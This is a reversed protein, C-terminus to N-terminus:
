RLKKFFKKLLSRSEEECIKGIIQIKRFHPDKQLNWVSGCAGAKPDLAAFVIKQVRAQRLAELCMLCPELTVYIELGPMRWSKLKRSVKKLLLLEAHGLPDQTKERVNHARALIKGKYIAVAGVPVEDKKAAKKAERLAAQM